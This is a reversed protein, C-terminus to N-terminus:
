DCLDLFFFSISLLMKSFTLHFNWITKESQDTKSKKFETKDEKM